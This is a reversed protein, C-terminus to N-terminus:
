AAGPARCRAEQAPGHSGRRPNSGDAWQGRPEPVGAAATPANHLTAAPAPRALSRVRSESIPGFLAAAVAIAAVAATSGIGVRGGPHMLEWCRSCTRDARARWRQLISRPRWAFVAPSSGSWSEVLTGGSDVHLVDGPALVHDSSDGASTLWVHGALVAIDGGRPGLAMVQGSALRVAAAAEAHEATKSATKSQQAKMMIVERNM